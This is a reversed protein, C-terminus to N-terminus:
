FSGALVPISFAVPAVTPMRMGTNVVSPLSGRVPAPAMTDGGVHSRSNGWMWAGGFIAGTVGVLMLTVGGALANSRSSSLTGDQDFQNSSGAAIVIAGAVFFVAGGILVWLGIKQKNKEGPAVELTLKDGKAADLYFADSENLNTGVIRYQDTAPLRQDCPAECAFEWPANVAGRRELNVKAPSNIHVVVTGEAVVPPAAAATAPTPTSSDTTGPAPASPPPTSPPPTSPATAPAPPPPSDAPGQAFAPSTLVVLQASAVLALSLGFSRM